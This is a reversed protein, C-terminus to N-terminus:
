QGTSKNKDDLKEEWKIFPLIWNQLYASKIFGHESAVVAIDNTVKEQRWKDQWISSNKNADDVKSQMQQQAEQAKRTALGSADTLQGELKEIKEEYEKRKDPSLQGRLKEEYQSILEQKHVDNKRKEEGLRTEVIRSVEDKIIVPKEGIVVPKDDDFLVGDQGIKYVM